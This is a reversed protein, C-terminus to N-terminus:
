SWLRRERLRVVVLECIKSFNQQRIIAEGRPMAHNKLVNILDPLRVRLEEMRYIRSWSSPSARRDPDALELTKKVKEIQKTWFDILDLSDEFDDMADELIVALVDAGFEESIFNRRRFPQLLDHVMCWESRLYKRSILALIVGGHAIEAAFNEVSNGTPAFQMEHCVVILDREKLASCLDDVISERQKGEPSDDGWAYSVYVDPRPPVTRERAPLSSPLCVVRFGVFGEEDVAPPFRYRCASRLDAPPDSWAGGRLVREANEAAQRDM